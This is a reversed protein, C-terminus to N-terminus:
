PAIFIPYCVLFGRFFGKGVRQFFAQREEAKARINVHAQVIIKGIDFEQFIRLGNLFGVIFQYLVDSLLLFVFVPQQFCVLEDFGSNAFM